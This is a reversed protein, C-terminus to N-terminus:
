KDTPRTPVAMGRQVADRGSVRDTWSKLSPYSTLESGLMKGAAVWPFAAMDAITYDDGAIYATKSLRGDLVRLIREMETEYRKIAYDIQEPATRAFHYLQGFMPGVNATQFFLWQEVISLAKPDSPLFQGTKRALYLLIAGSEFVTHPEGDPGDPDVIVPIKNNPNLALFEPKFQEKASLDVLKVNYALGMEELAISAKRGNPTPWTYYDIM